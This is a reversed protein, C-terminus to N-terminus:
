NAIMKYDDGEVANRLWQLDSTLERFKDPFYKRGGADQAQQLIVNLEETRQQAQKAIEDPLTESAKSAQEYADVLEAYTLDGPQRLTKMTNEVMEKQDPTIDLANKETFPKYTEKLAERFRYRNQDQLNEKAFAAKKSVADAKAYAERWEKLQILRELESVSDMLDMKLERGEAAEANEGLWDATQSAEMKVRTLDSEMALWIQNVTQQASDAEAYAEAYNEDIQQVRAETLHDLAKRYLAPTEIQANEGLLVQETGELKNLLTFTRQKWTFHEASQAIRTAEAAKKNAAEYNRAAQAAQADNLLAAAQQTEPQAYTVGEALLLSDVSEQATLVMNNLARDAKAAADLSVKYADQYAGKSLMEAGDETAYLAKRYANPSLDDQQARRAEAILDNAKRLNQEAQLQYARAEASKAAEIADESKQISVLFRNKELENQAASKMNISNAFQM